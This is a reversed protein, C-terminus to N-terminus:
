SHGFSAKRKLYWITLLGLLALVLFWKGLVRKERVEPPKPVKIPIPRPDPEESHLHEIDTVPVDPKTTVRFMLANDELGQFNILKADSDYWGITLRTIKSIPPNYEVVVPYDSHKFIKVSNAPVDLTLGTFMNTTTKGSLPLSSLENLGMNRFEQVDLFIYDNKSFDAIMPSKIYQQTGLPLIGILDQSRGTTQPYPLM